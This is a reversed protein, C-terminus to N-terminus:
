ATDGPARRPAMARPPRTRAPVVDVPLSGTLSLDLAM